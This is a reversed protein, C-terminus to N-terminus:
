DDGTNEDVNGNSETLNAIHKQMDNASMKLFGAHNLNGFKQKVAQLLHYVRNQVPKGELIIDRQKQTLM